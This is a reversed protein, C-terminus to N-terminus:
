FWCCLFTLPLGFVTRLIGCLEYWFEMCTRVDTKLRDFASSLEVADAKSDKLIERNKPKQKKKDADNNRSPDGESGGASCHRQFQLAAGTDSPTAQSLGSKVTDESQLSPGTHVNHLPTTVCREGNGQSLPRHHGTCSGAPKVYAGLLSFRAPAHSSSRDAQPRAAVKPEVIGCTNIAPPPPLLPSCHKSLTYAMLARPQSSRHCVIPKTNASSLLVALSRPQSAAVTYCYSSAPSGSVLALANASRAEPVSTANRGDKAHYLNGWVAASSRM